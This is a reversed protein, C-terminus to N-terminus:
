GVAKKTYPSAAVIHRWMAAASHNTAAIGRIYRVMEETPERPVVVLGAADLAALIADAIVESEYHSVAVYGTAHKAARAIMDRLGM